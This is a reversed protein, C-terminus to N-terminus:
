LGTRSGILRRLTAPDGYSLRGVTARKFYRHAHHEWTFGIGGHLQISEATVVFAAEAAVLKAMPAVVSLESSGAAATRVAYWATSTAAELTAVLDAVRHRLAQFTALPVGFQERTLLYSTTLDLSASAVGIAEVALLTHLIDLAYRATAGGDGPPSVRIAPAGELILRAVPRTQDLTTLGERRLDAAAVAFLAPEGDCAAVVVVVDAVDGDTVHEKVGDLLYGVGDVRATTALGDLDWRSGPEAIALTALTTGDAIGALIDNGGLASLAAATAVTSLYPLALLVRGTEEIVIAVEVLSAGFGGRAEDIALATLGLEQTLKTWLPRDLGGVERETVGAAHKAFFQRVTARLEEQEPSFGFDM